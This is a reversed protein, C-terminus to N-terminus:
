EDAADSTYLLCTKIAAMMLAPNAQQVEPPIVMDGTETYSIQNDGGRMNEYHKADDLSPIGSFVSKKMNGPM